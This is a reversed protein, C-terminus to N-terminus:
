TTGESRQDINSSLTVIVSLGGDPLNRFNIRGGMQEARERMGLIGFSTQAITHNDPLGCGNDKIELIVDEIGYLLEVEVKSAGSHRAVNTLSEQFIRFMNITQLKGLNNDRNDTRCNVSCQIHTRKQFLDAQWEIAACLGLDDLVTPRLDTIVDRTVRAADDLLKAMSEAHELLPKTNKTVTLEDILWNIDMKLATLTSGLDDHIERAINAKEEERVTQLHMTLNRLQREASKHETIDQIICVYMPIDMNIFQLRMEIPYTSGNKRRLVSEYFLSQQQGSTLLALIEDFRSKTILPLLDLPTLQKLEDSSYGLNKEAGESTLLYHLTQADFLYIENFSNKLLQGLQQTLIEARRHETGSQLLVEEEAQKRETIDRFIGVYHTTEQKNNKIATITMLKPYIQGGKRKDWIEGAWSGTTLLQNWITDYFAKDHRGSSLIRPNKGLVEESTYGTINLFAQNVRIINAHADTIMIAEDSEFTVAAISLERQVMQRLAANRGQINLWFLAIASVLGALSAQVLVTSQSWWPERRELFALQWDGAPDKWDLASSRVAYRVGDINAEPANLVFPLSEPWTQDFTTGFQRARRIDFIRQASAVGTVHYLWDNRSAAFVVGQPSFLVAIGGTWTKLLQELKEVGVKVVIVGIVGSRKDMTPRLPSALYIGRDSNIVGVGAYMNPIGQIALRVYPRFSLDYGSGQIHKRDSYGVIIGLKNVVFATDAFYQKRLTDLALMVEPADSPLQGMVLKKAEKNQLGFLITAGMAQSDITGKNLTAAYNELTRILPIERDEELRLNAHWTAVSMAALIFLASISWYIVPYRIIRHM